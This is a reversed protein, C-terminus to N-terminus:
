RGAAAAAQPAAEGQRRLANVRLIKFVIWLFPFVGGLVFSAWGFYRFYHGLLVYGAVATTLLALLHGGLYAIDPNEPFFRPVFYFRYGIVCCAFWLAVWIVVLVLLSTTLSVWPDDYFAKKFFFDLINM